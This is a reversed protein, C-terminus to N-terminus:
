LNKQNSEYFQRESGSKEFNRMKKSQRNTLLNVGTTLFILLIHNM